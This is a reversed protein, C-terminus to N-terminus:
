HVDVDNSPFQYSSITHLQQGLIIFCNGCIDFLQKMIRVFDNGKALQSFWLLDEMFADKNCIEAKYAWSCKSCSSSNGNFYKEDFLLKWNENQM